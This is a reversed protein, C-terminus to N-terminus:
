DTLEKIKVILDAPTFPKRIFNEMQDQKIGRKELYEVSYGSTFIIICGKGINRLERVYQDCDIDPLVIDSFIIKIRDKIEKLKELAERGSRACIVDFGVSALTQELLTLLQEDDDIIFIGMRDKESDTSNQYDPIAIYPLYLTFVTGKKPKSEVVISGGSQKVVGYVVTLGLGSGSQKTSFYPEFIHKLVEPRIGEGSDEVSVTVYNGAPVEFHDVRLADDLKVKGTSIKLIGGGPMADKANIILNTLGQELQLSDVKTTLVEKSLELRLDIDEGLFSRMDGAVSKVVDNVNIYRPLYFQKRSFGLLQESLKGARKIAMRIRSIYDIAEKNDDVALLLMDCCGMIFTLVNNLDHAFGGALRGVAEMKQAQIICERLKREETIDRGCQVVGILNGGEDRLRTAVIHVDKREGSKVLVIGFAEVSEEHYPYVRIRGHFEREIEEPSKRLLLLAPVPLDRGGFLSSLNLPRNLVEDRSIYTLVETAKNWVVVNGQYDIVMTAIPMGDIVRRLLEWQARYHEEIQIRETIDHFTCLVNIDKGTSISKFAADVVFHCGRIELEKMRWIHTFGMLACEIAQKVSRKLGEKDDNEFLNWLGVGKIKEEPLNFFLIANNNCDIIKGDEDLTLVPCPLFQFLTKYLHVAKRLQNKIEEKKRIELTLSETRKRVMRNLLVTIVFFTVIAFGCVILAILAWRPLFHAGKGSIWKDISRYYVSKRDKKFKKVYNDVIQLIYDPLNKKVAYKLEVPEFIVSTVVVGYDSAHMMGFLRSVVGFDAKGKVLAQFVGGYDDAFVPQIDLNLKSALDSFAKAYIDKEVFSVKKNNIDQFSTILVDGRRYLEGWNIFVSERSFKYRKARDKSFAVPGLIDLSGVSLRSLCGKWVCPEFKLTWGEKKAIERLVDVFLGQARAEEDFFALPPDDYVGMTLAVESANVGSCIFFVWLALVTLRFFKNGM